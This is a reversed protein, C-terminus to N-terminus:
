RPRPARSVALLMGLTMLGTNESGSIKTSRIPSRAAPGRAAHLGGLTRFMSTSSPPSPFTARSRSSFCCRRSCRSSSTTPSSRRSRSATTRGSPRPCRQAQPDGRWSLHCTSTASSSRWRRLVGPRHQLLLTRPTRRCASRARPRLRRSDPVVAHPRAPRRWGSERLDTLSFDTVRAFVNGIDVFLVGDVIRVLPMRLENNLVFLADGGAPMNNAGIPGVANQEFGRLTTSGGAYFRESTPVAGGFGHALGLRVGTAFVLRPRLIENTFPKRQPARLPFYHFYQGYYKLYPRDSGLWAPSYAFAQSLFAGRSADFVEDRTERTLTSTLPSVTLTETVGVGLSPELTTAREYRYGYSWVYSDRLEMEQQISAGKRTVDFPDTLDTPPNLEERFYLNATTKLPWYRLSPQSIYLRAERLEGDYRSQLGVVRAKGLSNHNSIDFIGGLGRETDYSAGYRLQFPQVERVSVNLRVPKQEEGQEPDSTNAGDPPAPADGELEERTIDVISFAGTDYLNRRSRALASLNLPQATPSSSRSACSISQRRRRARSPM